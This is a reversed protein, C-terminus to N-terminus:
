KNRSRYMYEIELENKIKESCESCLTETWRTLWNRVTVDDFRDCIIMGLQKECQLCICAIGKLSSPHKLKEIFLGPYSPGDEIVHM